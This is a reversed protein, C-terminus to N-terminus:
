QAGGAPATTESTTSAAPAGDKAKPNEPAEPLAPAPAKDGEPLVPTKGTRTTAPQGSALAKKTRARLSEPRLAEPWTAVPPPKGYNGQWEKVAAEAAEALAEFPDQYAVGVALATAEDAAILDGDRLGRWYHSANTVISPAALDFAFVIRKMPARDVHVRQVTPRKTNPDIPGQIAVTLDGPQPLARTKPKGDPGISRDVVAGVWRRSGAGHDPDFAFTGAPQGEHDLFTFPNPYVHFTALDM